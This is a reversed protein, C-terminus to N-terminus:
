MVNTRAKNPVTKPASEIPNSQKTSERLPLQFLDDYLAILAVAQHDWTLGDDIRNRAIKGLSKRLDPDDMLRITQRTFDTVDNNNAYVAAEGATFENERTRFCVTPKSLAMYEMTKITTCSDNYANSPDPTFCIDFSAVYAPVSEFPVMGTMHIADDVGLEVALKKLDAAAPGDGVIVAIFDHRDHITRLQHLVRIMNDVGDQVGIAGVYGLVLQDPERLEPRPAVDTLFFENPGNRVVYCHEPKAGCRDIQVKKQTENTAILRNARRCALREFFLLVRHVINPEDSDKRALYLEPSLDHLDFVFKKGLLQYFIAIMATMDPPTHVHVADFGHRLLVYISIIFQLVLSYGYEWVYALFYDSEYPKPYRYVRVGDIHATSAKELGTPCIVTVEFGAATLAKAELMVRSDDPYSENELLMLIRKPADDRQMPNPQLLHDAPNSNQINAQLDILSPTAGSYLVRSAM